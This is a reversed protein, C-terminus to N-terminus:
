HHFTLFLKTNNGKFIDELPILRCRRLTDNPGGFQLFSNENAIKVRKGWFIHIESLLNMCYM